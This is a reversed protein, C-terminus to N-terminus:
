LEAGCSGTQSTVLPGTESWTSMLGKWEANGALGSPVKTHIVARRRSPFEIGPRASSCLFVSGASVSGHGM